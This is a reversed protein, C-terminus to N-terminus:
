SVEVSTKIDAFLFTLEIAKIIEAERERERERETRKPTHTTHARAIPNQSAKKALAIKWKKEEAFDNAMWVMEELLYDWHTKGRPPEPLKTLRKSSWLGQMQLMSARNLIHADHAAKKALEERFSADEGLSSGKGVGGNEKPLQAGNGSDGIASHTHAPPNGETDPEFDAKRKRSVAAM